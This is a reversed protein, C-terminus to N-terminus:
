MANGIFYLGVILIAFIVTTVCLTKILQSLKDRKIRLAYIMNEARKQADVLQNYLEGVQRTVAAQRNEMKSIQNEM